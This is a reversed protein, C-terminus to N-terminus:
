LDRQRPDVVVKRMGPLLSYSDEAASLREERRKRWFYVGVATGTLTFLGVLVIVGAIIEWNSGGKEEIFYTFLVQNDTYDLDDESVELFYTGRTPVAPAVCLICSNNLFTAKAINDDDKFEFNCVISSSNHFSGFVYVDQGGNIPSKAPVTFNVYYDLDSQGVAVLVNCFLVFLIGVNAM